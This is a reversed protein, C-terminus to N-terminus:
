LSPWSCTKKLETIVAARCKCVIGFLGVIRGMELSWVWVWNYMYKGQHCSVFSATSSSIQGKNELDTMLGGEGDRARGGSRM